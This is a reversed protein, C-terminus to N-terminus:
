YVLEGIIDVNFGLAKFQLYLEDICYGDQGGVMSYKSKKDMQELQHLVDADFGFYEGTTVLKDIAECVEDFHEPFKESVYQYVLFHDEYDIDYFSMHDNESMYSLLAIISENSYGEDTLVRLNAYGKAVFTARILQEELFEIEDPIDFDDLEDLDDIYNIPETCELAQTIIWEKYAEENIMGLDPGNWFYYLFPKSTLIFDFLRYLYPKGFYSEYEPQVDCVILKM